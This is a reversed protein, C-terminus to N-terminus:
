YLWIFNTVPRKSTKWILTFSFLTFTLSFYIFFLTFTFDSSFRVQFDSSIFLKEFLFIYITFIFHSLSLYFNLSFSHSFHFVLSLAFIVHSHSFSFIFSFFLCFTQQLLSPFNITLKNHILIFIIKVNFLKHSTQKICFNIGLFLIKV